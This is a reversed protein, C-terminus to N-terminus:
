MRLLLQEKAHMAVRARVTECCDDHERTVDYGSLHRETEAQYARLAFVTVTREAATLHTNDDSM